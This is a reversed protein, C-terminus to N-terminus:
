RVRLGSVGVLAPVRAIQTALIGRLEAGTLHFAVLRNDFPMVEFVSGYTLPGPPLDSRLGGSTNNISVDAGAVAARYADTFLNGLPSDPTGARRIPAPLMVG